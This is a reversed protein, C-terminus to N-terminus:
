CYCCLWLLLVVSCNVVTVTWKVVVILNVIVAVYDL